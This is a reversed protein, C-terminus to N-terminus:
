RPSMRHAAIVTRYFAALRRAITRMGHVEVVHARALAGANAEPWAGSSVSRLIAGLEEEESFVRGFRSDPVLEPLSGTDSVVVPLGCAMAELTTLGMLESKAVSNGYVDRATSAQAFLGSTRYLDLLTKDDADLVFRVDKGNAMQRLLEYYPQHYVRGVITLSMDRPLAAIVRDIGKHPMIRSVCLIKRRDRMATNAASFRDTDVPGVLVEHPGSFYRRLLSHAYQSISIVGNLLEIGKGRLMLPNEGGGLDTGVAPIGLSRVIATSYAGSVTLCQYVHVLDFGPLEQWLGASFAGTPEPLSSENHLVRVSIGDREFLLDEAGFSFVCQEFGRIGRLAQVVYDVYREGGGVYSDPSFYAPTLHAIRLTRSSSEGWGATADL